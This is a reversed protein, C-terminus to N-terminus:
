PILLPILWAAARHPHLSSLDVICLTGAAVGSGACALAITAAAPARLVMMVSSASSYRRTNQKCHSEVDARWRRRRAAGADCRAAEGRAAQRGSTM